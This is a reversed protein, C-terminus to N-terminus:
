NQLQVKTAPMDFHKSITLNFIIDDTSNLVSYSYLLVSDEYDYLDSKVYRIKFVQIFFLSFSKM